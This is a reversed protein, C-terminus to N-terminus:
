WRGRCGPFPATLAGERGDDLRVRDGTKMGNPLAWEYHNRSAIRTIGPSDHHIGATRPLSCVEDVIRNFDLM